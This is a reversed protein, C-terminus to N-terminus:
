FFREIWEQIAAVLPSTTSPWAHTTLDIIRGSPSVLLDIGDAHVVLTWIGSATLSISYVSLDGRDEQEVLSATHISTRV